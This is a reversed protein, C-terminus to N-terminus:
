NLVMEDEQPVQQQICNLVEISGINMSAGAMGAQEMSLRIEQRNSGRRYVGGSTPRCRLDDMGNPQQSFHPSSETSCPHPGTHSVAAGM